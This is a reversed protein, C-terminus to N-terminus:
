FRSLDSGAYYEGIMSRKHASLTIHARTQVSLGRFYKWRVRELLGWVEWEGAIKGDVWLVEAGLM